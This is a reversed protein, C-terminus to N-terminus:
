NAFNVARQGFWASQLRGSPRVEREVKQSLNARLAMRWQYRTQRRRLKETRLADMRTQASGPGNQCTRNRAM